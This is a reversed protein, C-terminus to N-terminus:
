RTKVLYGKPNFTLFFKEKARDIAFDANEKLFQQVAEMPGDGFDQMLPHGIVTDEVILYSGRTVFRSYIRLESLVHEKHHDSDLVVMVTQKGSVLGAICAVTDESTSSGVLYQVRRHQPKGRAGEIDVTIVEGAGAIDLISAMFLASGGSATGCEIIVDPKLSFIIEQYVWLDLPCKM